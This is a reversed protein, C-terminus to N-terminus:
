PGVRDRGAGHLLHARQGAAAAHHPDAADDGNRGRRVLGGRAGQHVHHRAHYCRGPISVPADDFHGSFKATSPRARSSCSSSPGSAHSTRSHAARLPNRTCRASM